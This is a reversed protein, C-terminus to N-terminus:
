ELRHIFDWETATVPMVSLRNGRRLVVLEALEKAAFARLEELTIVRSFKRTLKVDVTFWRPAKVDSDADYHHHKRDFATTDPYASRVIKATGVIGPTLCSSHYFFAEDGKKFLDRLMNRAQFNRVGDWSATQKPQRALDDIGFTSPESKLMWYNM